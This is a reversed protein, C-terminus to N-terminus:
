IEQYFEAVPKKTIKPPEEASYGLTIFCKIKRGQLQLVAEPQRLFTLPTAMVCAGLGLEVAKLLLAKVALGVAIDLDTEERSDEDLVGAEFLKRSFGSVDQDTTVALLLPATLVSESFRWYANVHNKIKKIRKATIRNLLDQHGAVMAERFRQRVEESQLRIFRLPQSNSPSPAYAAAQILQEIVSAAPIEERYKRISRREVLLRDLSTIGSIETEM